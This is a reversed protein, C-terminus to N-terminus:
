EALHGNFYFFMVSHEHMLEDSLTWRVLKTKYYITILAAISLQVFYLSLSLAEGTSVELHRIQVVGRM